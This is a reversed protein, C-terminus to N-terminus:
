GYLEPNKFPILALIVPDIYYKTRDIINETLEGVTGGGQKSNHLRFVTDSAEGLEKGQRVLEVMKGPLYFVGSRAKGIVGDRNKIVVWAMVEMEEGREELGGEIGVYFDADLFQEAIHNMRNLAGQFTEELGMPQDSVGSPAGFGIMEFEEGPFMQQFGILAANIKVPNKSAVVIKKM